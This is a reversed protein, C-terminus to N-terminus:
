ASTHSISWNNSWMLRIADLKNQATAGHQTPLFSAVGHIDYVQAWYRIQNSPITHQKSLQHSAAGALYQKALNCKLERNYKTM